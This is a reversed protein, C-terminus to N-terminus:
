ETDWTTLQNAYIEYVTDLVAFITEASEVLITSELREMPNVLEPALMAGAASQFQYHRTDTLMDKEPIHSHGQEHFPLSLRPQSTNLTAM